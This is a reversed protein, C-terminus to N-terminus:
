TRTAKIADARSVNHWVSGALLDGGYAQYAAAELLENDYDVALEGAGAYKQMLEGSPQRTNYLVADLFPRGALREIEDAFDTVLFGEQGPKTVLNCVYVKFAKSKALAEGVGPVILAPGLSGYIDGPAVVIIDAE